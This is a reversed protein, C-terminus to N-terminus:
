SLVGSNSVAPSQDGPAHLIAAPYQPYGDFARQRSSQGHIPPNHPCDIHRM